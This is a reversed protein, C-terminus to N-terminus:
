AAVKERESSKARTQCMRTTWKKYMGDEGLQQLEEWGTPGMLNTNVPLLSQTGTELLAVWVSWRCSYFIATVNCVCWEQPGPALSTCTPPPTTSNTIPALPHETLYSETLYCWLLTSEAQQLWISFIALHMWDWNLLECSLLLVSKIWSISYKECREMELQCVVCCMGSTSIQISLKDLLYVSFWTFWRCQLCHLSHEAHSTMDSAQQFCYQVTKVLVWISHFSWIVTVVADGSGAATQNDASLSWVDLVDMCGSCWVKWRPWWMSYSAARQGFPACGCFSAHQFLWDPRYFAQLM